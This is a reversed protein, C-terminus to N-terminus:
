VVIQPSAPAALINNHHAPRDLGLSAKKNINLPSRYNLNTGGPLFCSLLIEESEHLKPFIRRSVPSPHLSNKKCTQMAQPDHIHASDHFRNTLAYSEPVIFYLDQLDDCSSSLPNVQTITTPPSLLASKSLSHNSASSSSLNM